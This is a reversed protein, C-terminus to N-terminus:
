TRNALEPHDQLLRKIAKPFWEETPPVKGRTKVFVFYVTHEQQGKQFVPEYGLYNGIPSKDYLVPDTNGEPKAPILMPESGKGRYWKYDVTEAAYVAYRDDIGYHFWSVSGAKAPFYGLEPVAAEQQVVKSENQPKTVTGTVLVPGPKAPNEIKNNHVLVIIGSAFLLTAIVAILAVVRIGTSGPGNEDPCDEPSLDGKNLEIAM